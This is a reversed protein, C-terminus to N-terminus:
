VDKFYEDSRLMDDRYEQKSIGAIPTVLKIPKREREEQVTQAWKAEKVKLDDMIPDDVGEAGDLEM